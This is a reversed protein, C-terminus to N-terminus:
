NARIAGENLAVCKSTVSGTVDPAPAYSTVYKYPPVYPTPAVVATTQGVVIREVLDM